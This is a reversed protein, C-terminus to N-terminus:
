NINTTTAIFEYMYQECLQKMNKYADDQRTAKTNTRKRPHSYNHGKIITAIHYQPIKKISFFIAACTDEGCFHQKPAIFPTPLKGSLALMSGDVKCVPLKKIVVEYQNNFNNLQDVDIYDACNFPPVAQWPHIAPGNRPFKHIWPHEVIDWTSDWMKRSALSLTHPETISLNSLIEFYNAPILCDSEGWVTYKAESDYVERRWDGVNYFSEANTKYIIDANELVPHSIFEVIMDEVTGEVPEELYTQLNICVKITVPITTHELAQQLSDLTENIMKSEYWMIHLNYLINDM